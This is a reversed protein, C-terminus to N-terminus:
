GIAKLYGELRRSIKAAEEIGPLMILSHVKRVKGNKKYISSIEGSVIFRPNKKIGAVQNDLRYEDKLRYFGEEAPVLKKKLEERWASHTFDGTGILGIGKKLAWKELYEPVCEKSTARAYKSHTHFDAIFLAIM